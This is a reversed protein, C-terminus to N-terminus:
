RPPPPCGLRPLRDAGRATIREIGVPLRVARHDGGFGDREHEIRALRVLHLRDFDEIDRARGPLPWSRADRGSTSPLARSLGPGFGSPDRNCASGPDRKRATQCQAPRGVLGGGFFIAFKKVHRIYQYHTKPSLRRITIDEILRRRLPSIAKDTM